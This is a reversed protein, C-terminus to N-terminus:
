TKLKLTLNKTQYDIIYGKRYKGKLTKTKTM